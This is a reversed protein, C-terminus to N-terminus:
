PRHPIACAAQVADTWPLVTDLQRTTLDSLREFLYTLYAAPVLGNAFLWNNRGIVLPKISRESRNNDLELRGDELFVTLKPWQNRCYTIAKGLASKPLVRDAQEELWAHFADLVPRSRQLRGDKRAEPTADHLDREIAFLRNCLDLGTQAAPPPQGPARASAPLAILADTFDRRAHSWCGVPTIGPLGEYVHYGDVHLYGTFGALFAQPHARARTEQYDYLIIPPGDRGPRYLWLYSDTTAARPPSKLCAATATLRM